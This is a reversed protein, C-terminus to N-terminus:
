QKLYDILLGSGLLRVFGLRELSDIDSAVLTDDLVTYLVDGVYFTRPSVYGMDSSVASHSVEGRMRIGNQPDVDLIYFGSWHPTPYAGGKFVNAHESPDLTGMLEPYPGDVPMSIMNHREDFFFAKHDWLAGSSTSAGGIIIEGAVKPNSVDSVDFLAVKLGLERVWRGDDLTTDRGVGIVHKGDYPHLYNSFGPIKLEGLIRPVDGSIDIVFFPDIQQFTVMYLREGMFRASYIREGPAVGELSGVMELDADLTYVSNSRDPGGFVDPHALTTAVRLREGGNSEGLSFQNLLTGPVEGRAQYKITGEDISVKHIITKSDSKMVGWARSTIAEEIDDELQNREETGLSNFYEEVIEVAEWRAEPGLMGNANRMEMVRERVEVPLLQTVAELFIELQVQERDYNLDLDKIYTLYLNSHTVYYTGTEGMLYTESAITNTAGDGDGSVDIISITTFTSLLLDDGFYFARPMVEMGSEMIIPFDPNGYDLSDATVVYVRDGIMRASEFWGDIAYDTLIGPSERDSIDIIVVHTTLSHSRGLLDVGDEGPDNSAATYFVVLKDSGDGLLVEEIDNPTIDLAVKTVTHIESAPWVDVITLTNDIAIYAYEGDNKLYDPEDVGAVQVNTTSYDPADPDTGAQEVPAAPLGGPDSQPQVSEGTTLSDPAADLSFSERDSQLDMFEDTMVMSDDESESSFWSPQQDRYIAQATRALEILQERTTIEVAGAAAMYAEHSATDPETPTGADTKNGASGTVDPNGPVIEVDGGPMDASQAVLAWGVAAATAVVVVATVAIIGLRTNM